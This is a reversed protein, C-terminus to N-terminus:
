KTAGTTGRVAWATISANRASPTAATKTSPRCSCHTSVASSAANKKAVAGKTIRESVFKWSSRGSLAM